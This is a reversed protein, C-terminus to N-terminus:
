NCLNSPFLWCRECYRGIHGSHCLCRGTLPECQANNMCMCKQRCQPPGYFGEPCPATLLKARQQEFLCKPDGNCSLANCEGKIIQIKKKKKLNNRMKGTRPHCLNDNGCQCKQLCM